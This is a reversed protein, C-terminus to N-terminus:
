KKLARLLLVSLEFLVTFSVGIIVPSYPDAGPTIFCSILWLAFLIYMRRQRLWASSVIGVLGLFTVVLPLEFVIGFALLFFAVFSFYSSAKLLLVFDGSGFNILWDIPYRLVLFGVVIGVAFLMVGLLTFPLAYKREKRTLGPSIFAWVQYLIVPSAFVLGMALSLKLAIVFAEGIETQILQQHSNLGTLRSSLTPLPTLLFRLIREWFFFSVATAVVIALVAIILRRRLEELHEVLTMTGDLEEAAREDAHEFAPMQGHGIPEDVRPGSTVNSAAM